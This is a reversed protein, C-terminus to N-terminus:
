FEINSRELKQQVEQRYAPDSDYRPDGMAQVVQAQSKFVDGSPSPAKGTIMQGDKGSSDQYRYALAQVAFYAALPNGLEMVKDYMKIEGERLNQNAWQMMNNYNDPGGVVGKLETIDQESLEKPGVGNKTVEQRYKLHMQALEGAKMKTLEQLTEKKFKQGSEAENWLQDLINTKEAPQEEAKEEKAEPKDESIDESKDQSGLKKELEIYAKELQEANEYKGALRKDQAEVLKEGVELSEQEQPNLEGAPTEEPTMTLTESM